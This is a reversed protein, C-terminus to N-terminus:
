EDYSFTNGMFMSEGTKNDIEKANKQYQGFTKTKEFLNKEEDILTSEARRERTYIDLTKM